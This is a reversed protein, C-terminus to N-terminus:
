NGFFISYIVFAPIALGAIELTPGSNLIEEVEPPIVSMIATLESELPALFNKFELVFTRIVGSLM